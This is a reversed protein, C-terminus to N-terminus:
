FAGFEIEASAGGWVRQPLKCREGSGRASNLPAVELPLSPLAPFPPCPFPLSPFPVGQNKSVGGQRSIRSLVRTEQPSTQKQVGLNVTMCDHKLINRNQHETSSTNGFINRDNQKTMRSLLHYVSGSTTVQNFSSKFTRQIKVM